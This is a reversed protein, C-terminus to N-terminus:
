PNWITFRGNEYIVKEQGNALTATVKRNATSILDTHVASDNFGLKKWDQNTLKTKDGRYCEKFATGLAVHTNNTINEDYLIEAMTHTIRSMRADTLSFEGLKDGNPVQLMQELFQKGKTASFKVVRGKKFTLAINKVVNGQRYLPQNFKIWGSTFRWDPSTFVEFSPINNGDGGLWQRNAGIKIKLDADDSELHIDEIELDNLCKKLAKQQNKIEQWKIVPEDNDLWCAKIIQRWYDPLSLDVINAKAPTGWLAITWSFKKQLEKKTLWDRYPKVTQSRQMIKQPEVSQLEYPDVDAIISIQHNILDAEAKLYKKPFFNLQNSNAQEFFARDFGGTPILRLIPHGGAELVKKQLHWALPKAVDPVKILVVESPKLGAGQNLAFNILIDAYRGLYKSDPSYNLQSM